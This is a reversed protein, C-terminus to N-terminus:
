NLLRRTALTALAGGLSHGTIWIKRKNQEVMKRLPENIKDWVSALALVFGEHVKAGNDVVQKCNLNIAWDRYSNAWDQLSLMNSPMDTGRFALVIADKKEALFGRTAGGDKKPDSFFPILEDFKLHHFDKYTEPNDEYAAYSAHALFLASKLYHGGLQFSTM